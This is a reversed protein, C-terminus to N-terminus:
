GEEKALHSLLANFLEIHKTNHPNKIKELLTTLDTSTKVQSVLSEPQDTINVLADLDINIDSNEIKNNVEEKIEASTYKLKFLQQYVLDKINKNFDCKLLLMNVVDIKIANKVLIETFDRILEINIGADIFVQIRNSLMNICNAIKATNENSKSLAYVNFIVSDLISNLVSTTNNKSFIDYLDDIDLTRISITKFAHVWKYQLDHRVLYSDFNNIFISKFEQTNTFISIEDNNMHSYIFDFLDLAVNSKGHIELCTILLKFFKPKSERCISLRGSLMTINKALLKFQPRDYFNEITYEIFESLMITHISKDLKIKKEQAYLDLRNLMYLAKKFHRSDLLYTLRQLYILKCSIESQHLIRYIKIFRLRFSKVKCIRKLLESRYMNDIDDDLFFLYKKDKRPFLYIYTDVIDFFKKAVILFDEKNIKHVHTKLFDIISKIVGSFCANSGKTIENKIREIDINAIIFINQELKNWNSFNCDWGKHIIAHNIINKFSEQNFLMLEMSVSSINNLIVSRGYEELYAM